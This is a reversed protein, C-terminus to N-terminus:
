CKALIYPMTRGHRKILMVANPDSDAALDRLLSKLNKPTDAGIIVDHACAERFVARCTQGDITEKIHVPYGCKVMQGCHWMDLEKLESLTLFAQKTVKKAIKSM